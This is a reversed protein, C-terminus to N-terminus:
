KFQLITISVLDEFKTCFVYYSPFQNANQDSFLSYNLKADSNQITIKDSHKILSWAVFTYCLGISLQGEGM